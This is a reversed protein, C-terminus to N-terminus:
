PPRCAAIWHRVWDLAASQMVGEAPLHNGHFVALTLVVLALAPLGSRNAVRGGAMRAFAYAGSGGIVAAALVESLSHARLSVRTTAILVAVGLTVVAPIFAGRRLPAILLVAIGGYVMTGAAVHGSPSHLALRDPGFAPVLWGCAYSLVKLVLVTGLVGCAALLWATMVGWRRQAALVLSVVVVVPLIAAQDAFDTLFM